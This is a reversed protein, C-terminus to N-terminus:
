ISDGPSNSGPFQYGNSTVSNMVLCTLEATNRMVKELVDTDVPSTVNDGKRNVFLPISEGKSNPERWSAHCLINRWVKLSHLNKILEDSNSVSFDSNNKLAEEYKDILGALPDSLARVLHKIWTQFEEDIKEKNSIVKTGSIAYIARALTEELFGFSGIARGLAEWFEAKHRHTPWIPNSQFHKDIDIIYNKKM